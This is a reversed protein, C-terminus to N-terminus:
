KDKVRMADCDVGSTDVHLLLMIIHTKTDFTTLVQTVINKLLQTVDNVSERKHHMGTEVCVDASIAPVDPEAEVPTLPELTMCETINKETAMIM